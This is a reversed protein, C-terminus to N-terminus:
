FTTFGHGTRQKNRKGTSEGFTFILSGSVQNHTSFSDNYQTSVDRYLFQTNLAMRPLVWYTLGAGANLSVGTGNKNLTLSGLGGILYPIFKEESLNFDYKGLFDIMLFDYENTYFDDIKSVSTFSIGAGASFGKGIYRTLALNPIQFSWGEGPFIVPSSFKIFSAGVSAAWKVTEDQSFSNLSLLLLVVTICRKFNIM